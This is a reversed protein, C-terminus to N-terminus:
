IDYCMLAGREASLTGLKQADLRCYGVSASSGASRWGRARWSVEGELKVRSGCTTKTDSELSELKWIPRRHADPARRHIGM